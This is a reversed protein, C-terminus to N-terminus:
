TIVETPIDATENVTLETQGSHDFKVINIITNLVGEKMSHKTSKILYRGALTNNITINDDVGDLAKIELEIIQGPRLDLRGKLQAMVSTNHLHHYYSLRNHIIDAFMQDNKLASPGDGLDSYDKFVMFTRANEETFTDKRFKETHPNFETDRPKGSMDIYSSNEFDFKSHTIRKKLLDVQIVKNTYAGSAIDTSTNIGKSMVQLDEVRNFQAEINSADLDVVPAYFLKVLNDKSAANLNNARKIFFEDTCFYYCEITEFFRFTQSSTSPNYARSAVFYMAESPSLDPIVVQSPNKTPQVFFSRDPDDSSKGDKILDFVKSEYPLSTKELLPDGFDPLRLDSYGKKFIKEAMTSPTSNFAELVNKTSSKFSNKSVFHITYTVGNTSPRPMIDSVRHVRAAIYVETNLDMGLLTLNLTEEGRIPMGELVNSTDLVNISGSYAVTDMSQEIEFGYIYNSSIDRRTNGDYSILEARTVEVTGPNFDEM